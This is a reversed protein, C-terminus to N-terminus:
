IIKADMMYNEKSDGHQTGGGSNFGTHRPQLNKFKSGHLKPFSYLVSCVLSGTEAWVWTQSGLPTILQNAQQQQRQETAWNHGVSQSGLPSCWVLSGQGEADGLAQEFEHGNLRNRVWGDWGRNDEEGAKLREWYWRRKWLTPEECWTALTNTKLRLMLGELSYEPNIEKLISKNSRRATWYVRLLRRWCWLKFADMRWPEAKKITWIQCGYM